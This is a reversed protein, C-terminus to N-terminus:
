KLIVICSTSWTCPEESHKSHMSSLRGDPLTLSPQTDIQSCSGHCSSLQPLSFLARIPRMPLFCRAFHHHSSFKSLPLTWKESTQRAPFSPFSDVRLPQLQKRAFRLYELWTKSFATTPTKSQCDNKPNRPVLHKLCFGSSKIFSLKMSSRRQINFALRGCGNGLHVCGRLQPVLENGDQLLSLRNPPILVINMWWTLVINM